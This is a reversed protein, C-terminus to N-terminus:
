GERRKSVALGTHALQEGFHELLNMRGRKILHNRQKLVKKYKRLQDIYFPDHMSLIQDIFWRRCEPSGSAFLFDDHIFVVTPMRELMEKRDNISKGHLQITKEGDNWVRISDLM